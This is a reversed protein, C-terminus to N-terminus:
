LISSFLLFNNNSPILIFYLQHPDVTGGWLLECWTIGTSNYTVKLSSRAKELEKLIEVDQMNWISIIENLKAAPSIHSWCWSFSVNFRFLYSIGPLIPYTLIYFFIFSIIIKFFNRSYENDDAIVTHFSQFHKFWWFKFLISM